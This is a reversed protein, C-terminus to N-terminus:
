FAASADEPEAPTRAAVYACVEEVAMLLDAITEKQVPEGANLETEMVHAHQALSWAGVGVSAARIVHLHERLEDLDRTHELKDAHARVIQGYRILIEVELGPDGLSQRALHLVDIPGARRAAPSAGQAASKPQPSM